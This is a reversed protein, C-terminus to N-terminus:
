SLFEELVNALKCKKSALNSKKLVSEWDSKRWNWLNKRPFVFKTQRVNLISRTRTKKQYFRSITTIYIARALQIAIKSNTNVRAFRILRHKPWSVKKLSLDKWPASIVYQPLSTLNALSLFLNSLTNQRNSCWQAEQLSISKTKPKLKLLVKFIVLLIANIM